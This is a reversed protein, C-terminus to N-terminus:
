VWAGPLDVLNVGDYKQANWARELSNIDPLGEPFYDVFREWTLTGGERKALHHLTHAFLVATGPRDCYTCIIIQVRKCVQQPQEPRKHLASDFIKSVFSAKMVEPYAQDIREQEAMALTVFMGAMQSSLPTSKYKDLLQIDFAEAPVNLNQENNM